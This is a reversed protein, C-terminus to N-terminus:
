GIFPNKATKPHCKQSKDLPLSQGQALKYPTMENLERTIDRFYDQKFESAQSYQSLRDIDKSIRQWTRNSYSSEILQRLERAGGDKYILGLGLLYLAHKSNIKSNASIISKLSHIPKSISSFLFENRSAIFDSWYHLLVKQCVQNAFLDCFKPDSKLNLAKLISIMKQKKSLRVEFRLVELIAFQNSLENFLSLQDSTQDKDIARGKPQNLDSIKDYFVISHSNSYFQLAKGDNRFSTKSLDLKKTLNIKALEKIVFSATSGNTLPINKSPHFVSVVANKLDNEFVSVGMHLLGLQLKSQIQLFDSEIVEELNNKFLLKPVSFEIKLDTTFVGQHGRKRITLRPLYLGAKKDSVTPNNVFNLNFYGAESLLRASPMFKDKNLIQYKYSPITLIVTDIM